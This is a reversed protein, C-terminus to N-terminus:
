FSKFIQAISLRRGTSLKEWMSIRIAACHQSAMSEKEISISVEPKVV